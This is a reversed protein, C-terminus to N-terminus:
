TSSTEAEQPYLPIARSQKTMQCNQTESPLSEQDKREVKYPGLAPWGSIPRKLMLFVTLQLCHLGRSSLLFM